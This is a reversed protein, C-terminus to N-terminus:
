RSNMKQYVERLKVLLSTDSIEQYRIRTIEKTLALVKIYSSDKLAKFVKESSLKSSVKGM